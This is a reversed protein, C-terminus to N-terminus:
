WVCWLESGFDCWRIQCLTSYLFIQYLTAFLNRLASEIPPIVLPKNLSVLRKRNYSSPIPRFLYGASDFSPRFNEMYIKLLTVPCINSGSEAIVVSQGQRLQDAKSKEIFVSIFGEGFHIDKSRIFLLESFRIFSSFALVFM